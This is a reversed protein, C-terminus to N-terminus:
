ECLARNAARASLWIDGNYGKTGGSIYIKGPHEDCDNILKKMTPLIFQRPVTFASLDTTSATITCNGSTARAISTRGKGNVFVGMANTPLQYFASLCDSRNLPCKEKNCVPQDFKYVNKADGREIKLAVSASQSLVGGTSPCIATLEHIMLSLEMKKLTANTPKFIHVNCTKYNAFIQSSFKDLTQNAAFVVKNLAKNCHHKEIGHSKTRPFCTLTPPLSAHHESAHGPAEPTTNNEPGKGFSHGTTADTANGALLSGPVIGITLFIYALFVASIM